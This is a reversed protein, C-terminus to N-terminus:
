LYFRRRGEMLHRKNTIIWAYDGTKSDFTGEQISRLKLTFRPGLERLKARKGDKTFEYRHHRFFIFDRQNHFTAVRRGKFQPDHNFLAGFMRGVTLGLKTTFNTLIVEPRHNTIEKHDRKIDKTLKLNSVKFHFTPGNPLHIVLIGNPKHRNENVIIVDTFDKQIASEVVKKVSSRNRLKVLTNPIIRGLELGFKRSKSNPNDSFTVLIKPTYQAAFYTSFEDLNLENNLEDNDSDNLNTINTQDQERLTEITHGPNPVIGVKKREKRAKRQEKNKQQKIKKYVEKRKLKNKIYNLPNIKPAYVGNNFNQIEINESFNNTSDAESNKQDILEIKNTINGTENQKVQEIYRLKLEVNTM